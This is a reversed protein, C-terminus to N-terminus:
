KPNRSDFRDLPSVHCYLTLTQDDGCDQNARSAETAASRLRALRLEDFGFEAEFLQWTRTRGAATAGGSACRLSLLRHPGGASSEAPPGATERNEGSVM